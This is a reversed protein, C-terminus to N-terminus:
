NDNDHGKHEFPYKVGDIYMSTLQFFLIFYFTTRFTPDNRNHNM